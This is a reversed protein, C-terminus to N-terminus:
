SLDWISANFGWRHAFGMSEYLQVASHNSATVTLSVSHCGHAILSVLSRRLLEYGLSMGRHSPAVCIQTIHGSDAAVLSALSLGCLAGTKVDLAAVSAPAFFTGCGPYLVINNLFRRAGSISRYQDNIESDIHGRYSLAVLRAADEHQVDSWSVIEVGAPNRRTLRAIAPAGAEMFWRPYRQCWGSYPMRRAHGTSGPGGLMLLQSEVRKIGPTRWMADLSAEILTNEREGTRHREMVYTDGILGKNEECVYYSYGIVRSGEFLAFGNLSQMGVFRQVLEASPRFDWHFRSRWVPIEEELLPTLDQPSIRRLEATRTDPSEPLAAM